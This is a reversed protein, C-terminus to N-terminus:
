ECKRYRASRLARFLAVCTTRIYTGVDISRCHTLSSASIIGVEQKVATSSQTTSEVAAVRTMYKGTEARHLIAREVLMRAGDFVVAPRDTM